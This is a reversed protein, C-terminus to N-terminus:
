MQDPDLPLTKGARHEELAEQALSDLGTGEGEVLAIEEAALGYLEYVLADIQQRWASYDDNEIAALAAQLHAVLAAREAPEVLNAAYEGALEPAVHAETM